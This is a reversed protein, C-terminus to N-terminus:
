DYRARITRRNPKHEAPRAAERPPPPSEPLAQMNGVGILQAAFLNYYVVDWTHNDRSEKKPVWTPCGKVIVKHESCLEGVVDGMVDRPLHLYGPGEKQVEFLIRWAQNKFELSNLEYVVLTPDAQSKTYLRSLRRPSGRVPILNNNFVLQRNDRCFNKVAEPRYGCDITVASPVLYMGDASRWSRVLLSRLIDYAESERTDSTEIRQAELLWGEFLYGWGFIGVRFWNDHVDISIAIAQVGWPATGSPYTGIHQRLRSEDTDARTEKWSQGVQNNIFHKLKGIDGAKLARQAKVWEAAMKKISRLAPHVMLGHIHGSKYAAPEITGEITGGAAMTVGAPLWIGQQVSAARDYDSWVKACSPCRYRVHHGMEYDRAALFAGSKDKDLVAYVGPQDSDWWQMVHWFRCKGCPVWYECRDGEEFETDMLDGVNRGSSVKLLKSENEYTNQRGRLQSLADIETMGVTAAWLAIEDAFIYRIPYDAITAASNSWALVMMMAGLDTPEGLFLNDARGGLCRLLFPNVEFFPRLRKMRRRLTNEDTMVVMTPGPAFEILWSLCVLSCFTKGGQLPAMLAIERVFPDNFWECVGRLYPSYDFSFPGALKSEKAPIMLNAPAWDVISPVDRPEVIDLEEPLLPCYPITPM